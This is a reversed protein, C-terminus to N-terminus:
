PSTQQTIQGSIEVGPDNQLIYAQGPSVMYLILNSSITSISATVRGDSEVQYSGSLTPPDNIVGPLSGPVFSNAEENLNLNGNGDAFLTGIRTLFNNPNYGDMVLAYGFQSKFDTQSFTNQQQLDITGDEVKNTAAVLFFARSPSVMWFIEPVAAGGAPIVTADVRGNSNQTFTGTFAQGLTSTGDQVSDLTGASLTGGGATFVGVSRVGGFNADTDGSSGFVYNGALAPSGTSQKEANGKGLLTPDSGMLWFTNADVIYYQYTTTVPSSANDTYTLTGRGNSDPASFSGSTLTLQPLLVNNRLVDITGTVTTGNTSTLAGVTASSIAPLSQHVRTVFTGTPASAIAATDQKVGEGAANASFNAFADAEVAYFKATSALTISLNIQGSGPSGFNIQMSGKGDRAINYNGTFPTAAAFGAAPLSSNFDETGTLNGAGDATFVLTETYSESQLNNSTDLFTDNGSMRLVYSGKLSSVSYPGKVSSGNSGCGLAFALLVLTGCLLLKNIIEFPFVASSSKLAGAPVSM